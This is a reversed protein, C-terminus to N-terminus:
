LSKPIPPLEGNAEWERVRALQEAMDAKIETLMAKFQPEKYLSELNLDNEMAWALRWGNDVARRLMMLANQTDGKIAFYAAEVYDLTNLVVGQDRLSQILEFARGLHEEAKQQDGLRRYLNAQDIAALSAAGLVRSSNLFYDSPSQSAEEALDFNEKAKSLNGRHMEAIALRGYATPKHPATALNNTEFEVLQDWSGTAQFFISRHLRSELWPEAAEVDGLSLYILGMYLSFAANNPQKELSKRNHLTAQDMEGLLFTQRTAQYDGVTSDPHMASLQAFEKAAQEYNGSLTLSWAANAAIVPSLPDLRHASRYAKGSDNMRGVDNLINGYWMYAMAYNPNLDVARALSTIAAALDSDSLLLGRSAHAEALNPDLTLAKDIAPQANEVVESRSLDGYTGSSHELLQYSDAIGVYALAYNADFEVARQFYQLAQELDTKNRKNVHHRGLVYLDYAQLDETAPQSFGTNEELVTVKLADVVSTAIEDQIAFIDSDPRDYTKSWLHSGNNVDILQAIVRLTNGSKQVSGELITDVNLKEGIQRIDDTSDKFSYSSTRAAVRLNKVQALMHLLTDALGDAFYENDRARSFDKFPLVAVSQRTDQEELPSLSSPTEPAGAFEPGPGSTERDWDHTSAFYVLGLSMLGIIIFDLKRGTVHTISESRDVEHERKIGEPTLEFAWAFILAPVFGVALIVFILKPAWDPLDLIPTIVETIQLLVWTSIVYAIGVRFVNRRKLEDFFKGMFGARFGIAPESLLM